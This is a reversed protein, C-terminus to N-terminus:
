GYRARCEKPRDARLSLPSEHEGPVPGKKPSIDRRDPRLRPRWASPPLGPRIRFIGEAARLQDRSPTRVGMVRRTEEDMRLMDDYSYFTGTELESARWSLASVVLMVEDRSLEYLAM